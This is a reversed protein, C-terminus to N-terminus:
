NGVMVTLKIVLAQFDRWRNLARFAQRKDKAKIRRFFAQFALDLRKLTVQCSQANLEGYEELERRLITLEACQEYFGLSIGKRKYAGIRHELAANYLRKHLRLLGLLAVLQRKSPYLRYSIKRKVKTM